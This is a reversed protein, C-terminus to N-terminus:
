EQTEDEVLQDFDYGSWEKLFSLKGKNLDDMGKAISIVKDIIHKETIDGLDKKLKAINGKLLTEIEQNTLNMVSKEYGLDRNIEEDDIILHKKSFTRSMNNIYYIENPDLLVFSNPHVVIERIGDMLKLGVRFANPNTVKVKKDSM